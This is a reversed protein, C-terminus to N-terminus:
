MKSPMRMGGDLRLVVGNLMVNEVGHRVLNAFEEPKGPRRPFEMVRTLSSRVKDSMLATMGSDFLSPAITVVRIAYRALDRTLPLTLSAIAGKSAAYAVQGPQGDFAASSSVLVIVGREADAGQPQVKSMHPLVQRVLDISGRVNINMVFDFGGLDFPDGNRDIIKAPTSVGAAAIVGGVEKGTEQVWSLTDKVARVISETDSVDVHFFRARDNGLEKVLGEGLDANMDLCAVYGGAQYLNQATARGLGSAGGSVLFTRGDIRM